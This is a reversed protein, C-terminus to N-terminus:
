VGLWTILQTEYIRLNSTYLRITLSHTDPFLGVTKRSRESVFKFGNKSNQARM